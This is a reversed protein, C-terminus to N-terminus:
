QGTEDNPREIWDEYHRVPRSATTSPEPAAVQEPAPELGAALQMERMLTRAGDRLEADEALLALLTGDRAATRALITAIGDISKRLYMGVRDGPRVGMACLRDRVRDSLADLDRYRIDGRGPEVVAVAAPRRRAADILYRHLPFGQPTM